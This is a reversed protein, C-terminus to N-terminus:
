TVSLRYRNVAQRRSELSRVAFRTSSKRDSVRLTNSTKEGAELLINSLIPMTGRKEVIGQSWKLLNLFDTKKIKLEM